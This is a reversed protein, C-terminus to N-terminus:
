PSTFTRVLMSAMESRNISWEPCFNGFYSGYPCDHAGYSFGRRALEKIWAAAWHYSPVDDLYTPNLSSISPPIYSSGSKSRLLFVAMEAHTVFNNPCYRLPGTACGGTIGERYLEEIWAAAWHGQIDAFVTGTAPPPMYGSGHIGRLLFVAMEARTVNNNPCYQLPNVSCGGTFGTAYLRQIDQWAWSSKPVDSFISASTTDLKYQVMHIYRMSYNAWYSLPYQYRDITHANVKYSSLSSCSGTTSKWVVIGEHDWEAADPNANKLQVIDGPLLSCVVTDYGYPGLNWYNGNLFSHQYDVVGWAGSYDRPFFDYYWDLYWNRGTSMGSRAPPAQWIGAYIVQSGYNTCDGPYTNYWDTNYSSSFINAYNVAANRNYSYTTLELAQVNGTPQQVASESNKEQNKFNEDVVKKIEEVSMSQLQSSLEDQYEDQYMVWAKEANHLTITHPLNFMQSTDPALARFVVTHSERLKVIATNDKIEISDYDLTFEYKVYSLDFLTAIYLEIDRKDQEKQVWELSNNELLSSFDQMTLSKQGEYRTTFYADIAAKIKEEDSLDANQQTALYKDIAAQSTPTNKPSEKHPALPAAASTFFATILILLILGLQRSNKFGRLLQKVM